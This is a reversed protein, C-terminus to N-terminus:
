AVLGSKEFCRQVVADEHEVFAYALADVVSGSFRLRVSNRQLARNSGGTEFSGRKVILRPVRTDDSNSSSERRM